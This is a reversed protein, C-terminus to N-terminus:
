EVRISRLLDSIGKQTAIFAKTCKEIEEISSIVESYLKVLTQIEM